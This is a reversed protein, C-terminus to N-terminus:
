NPKSKQCLVTSTKVHCLHIEDAVWHLSESLDGDAILALQYCISEVQNLSAVDNSIKERVKKIIAVCEVSTIPFRVLDLKEPKVPINGLALDLIYTPPESMEVIMSDTWKILDEKSILHIQHEIIKSRTRQILSMM